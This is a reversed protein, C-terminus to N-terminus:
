FDATEVNEIRLWGCPKAKIETQEKGFGAKADTITWSSQFLHEASLWPSEVVKFPM